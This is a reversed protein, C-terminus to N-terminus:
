APTPPSDSGSRLKAVALIAAGGAALVIPARKIAPNKKAARKVGKGAGKGAGKAAGAVAGLKLWAVITDVTKQTQSKRQPILRM